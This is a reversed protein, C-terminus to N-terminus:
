RGSIAYSRRAERRLNGWSMKGQATLEQNENTKYSKWVLTPSGQPAAALAFEAAGKRTPFPEDVLLM